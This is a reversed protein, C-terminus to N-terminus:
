LCLPSLLQAWCNSLHAVTQGCCVHALFHPPSSHGKWNPPVPDEDLMIDGPWPRGGYWTVDRSRDLGKAVISRFRLAPAATRRDFPPSSPGPGWRVHPRPQPRVIQGPSLGVEMGLPMKIWGVTEGCYALRVLCVSGCVCLCVVTRYCLDFRKVFPQGFDTAVPEALLYWYHTM